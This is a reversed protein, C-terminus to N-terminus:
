AQSVVLFEGNSLQKNPAEKDKLSKQSILNMKSGWLYTKVERKTLNTQSQSKNILILFQTVDFHIWDHIIVYWCVTRIELWQPQTIVIKWIHLSPCIPVPWSLTCHDLCFHRLLLAGIKGNDTEHEIQWIVSSSQPLM